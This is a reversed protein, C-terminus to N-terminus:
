DDRFVTKPFPSYTEQGNRPDIIRFLDSPPFDFHHLHQLLILVGKDALRKFTSPDVNLCESLKARSLNTFLFSTMVKMLIPDNNKLTYLAEKVKEYPYTVGDVVMDMKHPFTAKLQKLVVDNQPNPRPSM